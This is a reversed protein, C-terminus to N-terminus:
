SKIFYNIHDNKNNVSYFTISSTSTEAYDNGGSVPGPDRLVGRTYVFLNQGNNTGDLTYTIAGPLTHATNAPINASLREITRTLHSATIANSLAQLSATITQGSTLVSGTYTRNGIQNNLTNLADVVTPTANPLNYFPYYAATNTLLGNM